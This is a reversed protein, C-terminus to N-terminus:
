HDRNSEGETTCTAITAPHDRVRGQGDTYTHYTDVYTTTMGSPCNPDGADPSLIVTFVVAFVALAVLTVIIVPRTM